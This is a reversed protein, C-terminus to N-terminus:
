KGEPRRPRKEPRDGNRAGIGAGTRAGIGAGTRAGIGAGTGAGPQRAIGCAGTVRM